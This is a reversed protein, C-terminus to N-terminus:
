KLIAYWNGAKTLCGDEGDRKEPTETPECQMTLNQRKGFLLAYVIIFVFFLIIAGAAYFFFKGVNSVVGMGTTNPNRAAYAGLGILAADQFLGDGGKLRRPM